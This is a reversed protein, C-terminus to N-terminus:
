KATASSRQSTTKIKGGRTVKKKPMKSSTVDLKKPVLLASEMVLTEEPIAFRETNVKPLLIM